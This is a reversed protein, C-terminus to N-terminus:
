GYRARVEENQYAGVGREAARVTGLGPHEKHREGVQRGTEM